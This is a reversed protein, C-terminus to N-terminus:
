LRNFRYAELILSTSNTYSLFLIIDDLAELFQYPFGLLLYLVELGLVELDLLGHFVCFDVLDLDLFLYEEILILADALHKLFHGLM